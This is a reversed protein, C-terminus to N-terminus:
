RRRPPKTPFEGAAIRRLRARSREIQRDLEPLERRAREILAKREEPTLPRFETDKVPEGMQHAEVGPVPGFGARM